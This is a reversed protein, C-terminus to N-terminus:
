VLERNSRTDHHYEVLEFSFVRTVANFKTRGSGVTRYGYISELFESVLGMLWWSSQSGQIGAFIPERVSVKVKTEGEEAQVSVIGWGRARMDDTATSLLTDRDADPLMNRHLAAVSLWSSRGVEFILQLGQVGLQKNLDREMFAISEGPMIVARNEEFLIVPFLRQDYVVDETQTVSVSTVCPLGKLETALEDSSCDARALDAFISFIFKQGGEADYTGGSILNVGHKAKISTVKALAGIEDSGGIVLYPVAEGLPAVVTIRRPFYDPEESKL